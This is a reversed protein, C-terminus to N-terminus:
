EDNDGETAEREQQRTAEERLEDYTGERDPLEKAEERKVEPREAAETM